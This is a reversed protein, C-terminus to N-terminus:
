LIAGSGTRIGASLWGPSISRNSCHRRAHAWCGVEV